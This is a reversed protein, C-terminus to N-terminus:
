VVVVVLTGWKFTVFIAFNFNDIPAPRSRNNNLYLALLEAAWSSLKVADGFRHFYYSSMSLLAVNNDECWFPPGLKQKLLPEDKDTPNNM